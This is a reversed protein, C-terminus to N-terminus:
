FFISQFLYQVNETNPIFTNHCFLARTAQANESLGRFFLFLGKQTNKVIIVYGCKTTGFIQSYEWVLVASELQFVCYM